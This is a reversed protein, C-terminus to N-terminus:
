NKNRGNKLMAQTNALLRENLELEAVGRKDEISVDRPPSTVAALLSPKIVPMSPVPLAVTALIVDRFFELDKLMVKMLQDILWRVVNLRLSRFFFPRV